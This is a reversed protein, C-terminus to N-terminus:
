KEAFGRLAEVVTEMAAGRSGKVLVSDGERWVSAVAEAAAQNSSAVVIGESMGGERAGAAVAQSYDGVTCLLIPDLLAAGHGAREHLMEADNGLELMDGLVLIRRGGGTEAITAFAASLSSPNANYCDNLLEVGNALMEYALRMPPPQMAALGEVIRAPSIGIATAAAAAATANSVNHRGGLPLEVQARFGPGALEFRTLGMSIATVHRAEFEGAAGFTIKRGSFRPAQRVVWEDDANVVAVADARLGAYLEGKAKAVGEISGLGELHAAGVCTIIGVDPDAIEVLRAIEGPANMGMEVVAVRHEASMQCLTLPLGVLNNLNGENALVAAAGFEAALIARLMEKTTTKGNSGTVAIVPIDFAERHCHAIDGLARLTDDVEVVSVGEHDLGRGRHCVIAAAGAAVAEALFDNADFNEGALAVFVDGKALTRTDTGVGCTSQDAPGSRLVGGTAAVIENVKV